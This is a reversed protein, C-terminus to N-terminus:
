AFGSATRTSSPSTARIVAEAAGHPRQSRGRPRSWNESSFAYVTMWPIGLDGVDRVAKRLAEVGAGHGAVRPLGRQMAWRGNGDMIIAIHNPLAM